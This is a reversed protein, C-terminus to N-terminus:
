LGNWYMEGMKCDRHYWACPHSFSLCITKNNTVFLYNWHESWIQNPMFCSYMPNWAMRLTPVSIYPGKQRQTYKPIYCYTFGPDTSDLDTWSYIVATFFHCPLCSQCCWCINTKGTKRKKKKKCEKFGLIGSCVVARWNGKQLSRIIVPQKVGVLTNFWWTNFWWTKLGHSVCM